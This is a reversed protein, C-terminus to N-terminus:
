RELSKKLLQINFSETNIKTEQLDPICKCQYVQATNKSRIITKKNGRIELAACEDIGIFQTNKAIPEEAFNKRKDWHPICFNELLGLGDAFRSGDDGKVVFKDFWCIAGASLGAIPKGAIATQEILKDFGTEKWRKILFSTNGGGVYIADAKSLKEKMNESSPNESLYLAEVLCGLKDGYLSIMGKEYLREPDLEETATPIFLILPHKKGISAVFHQDIELTELPRFTGDSKPAGIEGGGILLLHLM